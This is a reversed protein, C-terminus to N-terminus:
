RAVDKVRMQALCNGAGDIANGFGNNTKNIGTARPSKCFKTTVPLPKIRWYTEIRQGNNNIDRRVWLFLNTYCMICNVDGSASGHDYSIPQKIRIPYTTIENGSIDYAKYVDKHREPIEFSITIEKHNRRTAHHEAGVSHGIEHAVISNISLKQTNTYDEESIENRYQSDVEAEYDFNLAAEYINIIECLKPTGHLVGEPLTEAMGYDGGEGEKKAIIIGYQDMTYGTNSNYNVQRGPPLEGEILETVKIKSASEFLQLGGSIIDGVRNEIILDKSKPDLRKHQGKSIVGRYEEFLSLGDGKLGDIEPKDEEDYDPPLNKGYIQYDKEWKDAIFNNNEDKPISIEKKNDETKIPQWHSGDFIEASLKGYAGYDNAKILIEAKTVEDSTQVTTPDIRQYRTSSNELDFVLDAKKNDHDKSNLCTGPETSVDFLKIKVVVSLPNKSKSYIKVALYKEPEPLYNSYETEDSVALFYESKEKKGPSLSWSTTTNSIPDYESGSLNGPSKPLKPAQYNQAQDLYDLIHTFEDPMNGPLLGAGIRLNDAGDLMELGRILGKFYEKIPEVEIKDIAEKTAGDVKREFDIKTDAGCFGVDYTWDSLDISIGANSEDGSFNDSGTGSLTERIEVDGIKVSRTANITTTASCSGYWYVLDGDSDKQDLSLSGITTETVNIIETIGNETAQKSIHKIISFSGSWEKIGKWKLKDSRKQASLDTLPCFLIIALAIHLLSDTLLFKRM